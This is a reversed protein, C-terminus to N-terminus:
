PVFYSASEAKLSTTMALKTMYSPSSVISPSPDVYPSCGCALVYDKILLILEFDTQQKHLWEVLKMVSSNFVAVRDLNRCHLMHNGMRKEVWAVRATDGSVRDRFVVACSCVDLAVNDNYSDHSMMILDGAILSHYIWSGDGDTTFTRWLSQNPLAHLQELFSRRPSSPIYVPCTSHVVQLDGDIPCCHVSARTSRDCQGAVVFSFAYRTGQRTQRHRESCAFLSYSSNDHLKYLESRDESVFWVDQRHPHNIYPGLAVPLSTNSNCLNRIVTCFINFDERTPHEVSFVRSSISPERTFVFPDITKGDVLTVDAVSHLGKIQRVRNFTKRDTPSYLDNSCVLDMLSRDDQRLLPIMWRRSPALTVKFKHCLRWLHKWWGNSALNGLQDFFVEVM